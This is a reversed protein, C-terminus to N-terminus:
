KTKCKPNGPLDEMLFCGDRKHRGYIGYKLAQNTLCLLTISLNRKIRSKM